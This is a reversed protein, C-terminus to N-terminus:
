QVIRQVHDAWLELGARKEPNYRAKNYVGAVGSKAAGSVHNLVAEAHHPLVGIDNMGTSVVRRLDHIRWAPMKAAVGNATRNDAILKDIAKKVKSFGSVPTKGNTSFIFPCDPM